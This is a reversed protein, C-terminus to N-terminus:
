TTPITIVFCLAYFETGILGLATGSPRTSTKEMGNHSMWREHILRVRVVVGPVRVTM